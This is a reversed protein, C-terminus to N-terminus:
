EGISAKESDSLSDLQIDVANKYDLKEKYKAIAEQRRNERVAEDVGKRFIDRISNSLNIVAQDVVASFVPVDASKYKAKGIKFKFDDFDGYLDVGFRVLLPSKIISIHYRFSQDLNQIGSMGLVYRDVNLIFPFIELTNDRIQGEVSMDDIRLKERDKFKLINMLKDIAPDDVIELNKGGLRIVGNVSPMVINMNEDIDATAAVECNLNGKFTKLIPMISDVAPLMEIVKDATIADMKLRFGTRLDKKTVTSYFGEFGLNGVNSTATTNTVQLCRHMMKINATAKDLKLTSYTVDSASLAIDAELNSPIVILSSENLKVNALTDSAVMNEFADDDLEMRGDEATSGGYEAGKVLAGLLENVNLSDASANMELKLGGRGQLAMRLGSLRGTASLGSSGSRLKFSDIDLENNDVHGRFDSISTRLPFRPTLVGVRGVSLNVEADWDRLYGAITEDLKFNLDKKRFDDESLWEPVQRARRSPKRIFNFLSDRPVDPHARAVSDVYAKARRRRQPGTLRAQADFDMRRIVVRGDPHRLFMGGNGSSLKLVPVPDGKAEDYIRFTNKSNRLSLSMSAQDRLSLYGIELKGGFPYVRSSSDKRDIIGASNHAKLSMGRGKLMIVDKYNVDVSDVSAAMALMREGQAVNEDKTNEMIGLRVDMSDVHVSVSDKSSSFMFHPSRIYGKLDAGAFKYPDMQSKRIKGAVDAEVNGSMEYGSKPGTMRGITDLSASLFGRVDFLPDEGMLNDSSGELTLNLAPGKFRFEGLRASLRGSPTMDACADIAVNCNLRFAKYLLSAEPVSLSANVAPFRGGGFDYYGDFAASMSLVADTKISGADKYLLKGFNKLVDGVKCRDIGAVGKVYISDKLYRVDADARFPVGAVDVSTEHFSVAFVSDKPFAVHSRVDVPIRLRGYDKTALFTKASAELDVHDSHEKVYLRDLGLAVTDKAMRGSVFLSDMTFGIRGRGKGTTSLRGRFKMEKLRVFAYLTDAMDCYVIMPNGALAVREVTVKPLSTETTDSEESDDGGKFVNWNALDDGYKKAFVRPGQLKVSPIYVHGFALAGLNVSVSFEKFSALTDATEGCGFRMLRADGGDFRDSPYTLTFDHLTVNLNPFNKFVSTSVRGFSVDGDIFDTVAGNVIGTLVSPSLVVQVAILVVAWVGAVWLLVNRLVKCKTKSDNKM